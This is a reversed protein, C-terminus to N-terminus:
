SGADSRYHPGSMPQCLGMLVSSPFIQLFSAGPGVDGLALPESLIEAWNQPNRRAKEAVLDNDAKKNRSARSFMKKGMSCLFWLISQCPSISLKEFTIHSNEKLKSNLFVMLSM